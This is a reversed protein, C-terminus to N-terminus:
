CAVNKKFIHGTVSAEELPSSIFCLQELTVHVELKRVAVINQNTLPM